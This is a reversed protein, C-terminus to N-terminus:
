ELCCDIHVCEQVSCISMNCVTYVTDVRINWVMRPSMYLIRSKRTGTKFFFFIAKTLKMFGCISSHSWTILSSQVYYKALWLMSGAHPLIQKSYKNYYFYITICDKLITANQISSSIFSSFRPITRKKHWQYIPFYVFPSYKIKM